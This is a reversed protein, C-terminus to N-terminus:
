RECLAKLAKLARPWMEEFMSKYDPEIQMDIALKTSDGSEAFTYNEFSPTWKKVEDSTTDVVGNDIVGLHEISIYQYPINDKIRSFLGRMAGSDDPALFRIESGKTWSGEYCSGAQFERSWERYSKDQLMTDWVKRKDAHILISFQLTEM